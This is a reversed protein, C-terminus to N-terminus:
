APPPSPTGTRGKGRLNRLFEVIFVLVFMTVTGLFYEMWEFYHYDQFYFKENFVRYFINTIVLFLFSFILASFLPNRYSVREQAM